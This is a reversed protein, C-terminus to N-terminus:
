SWVTFIPFLDLQFPELHSRLRIRNHILLVYSNKIRGIRKLKTKKKALALFLFISDESNIVTAVVIREYENLFNTHFDINVESDLNSKKKM